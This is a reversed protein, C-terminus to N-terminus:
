SLLQNPVINPSQIRNFTVASVNINERKGQNNGQEDM